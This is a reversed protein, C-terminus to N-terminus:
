LHCNAFDSLIPGVVYAPNGFYQNYKEVSTRVAGIRKKSKRGWELPSEM